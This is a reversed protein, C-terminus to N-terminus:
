SYFPLSSWSSPPSHFANMLLCFWHSRLGNWQFNQFETPNWIFLCSPSTTFNYAFCGRHVQKGQLELPFSQPLPSPPSLPSPLLSRGRPVILMGDLLCESTQQSFQVLLSFLGSDLRCAHPQQQETSIDLISAVAKTNLWRSQWWGNEAELGMRQKHVAGRKWLSLWLCLEREVTDWANPTQVFTLQRTAFSNKNEETDKGLTMAFITEYTNLKTRLAWLIFHKWLFSFLSFSFFVCM